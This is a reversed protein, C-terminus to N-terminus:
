WYINASNIFVSNINRPVTGLVSYPSLLLINFSAPNKLFFTVELYVLIGIGFDDM